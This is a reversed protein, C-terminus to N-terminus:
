YSRVDDLRRRQNDDLMNEFHKSLEGVGVTIENSTESGGFLLTKENYVRIESPGEGPAEPIKESNTRIDMTALSSLFTSYEFDNLTRRYEMENKGRGALIYITVARPTVEITYYYAYDPDIVPSGGKYVIRTAKQLTEEDLKKATEASAADSNSKSPRTPILPTAEQPQNQEASASNQAKFKGLFRTGSSETSQAFTMAVPIFAMFLLTIISKM